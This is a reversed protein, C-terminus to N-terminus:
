MWNGQNSSKVGEVIIDEGVGDATYGNAVAEKGHAYISGADRGFKRKM